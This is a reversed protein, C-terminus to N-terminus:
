FMRMQFRGTIPHANFGAARLHGVFEPPGHTCYIEAAGVREATEFLDDFDAHDSLPLAHDVRYQYKTSPDIAWGTTVISVPHKIGAMRFNKMGRPLTVIAHDPKAKGKFESVDGLDMGCANYVKSVAFIDPHQEVPIGALTLIKTVEQSKGLAYAHIVPTRGESLTKRVLAILEAIIEERPPLRYKPKGFTSEMVLIDAQPLEVEECTASPGLKFDGTFLLRKEGDDALLMASGLCHGAPYTTLTFSGFPIPQRHPLEATRRMGLRHQYLQATSSTCLALEHRAIHDAHAHSIFGV